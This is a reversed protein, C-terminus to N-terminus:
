INIDRYQVKFVIKGEHFSAKNQFPIHGELRLIASRMGNKIGTKFDPGLSKDNEYFSFRTKDIVEGFSSLFHDFEENPILSFTALDNECKLTIERENLRLKRYFPVWFCRDTGPLLLHVGGKSEAHTVFNIDSSTIVFLGQKKTAMLNISYKHFDKLNLQNVVYMISTVTNIYNVTCNIKENEYGIRSTCFRQYSQGVDFWFQRVYNSSM